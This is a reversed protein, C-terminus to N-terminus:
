LLAGMRGSTMRAHTCTPFNRSARSVLVYDRGWVGGVFPFPKEQNHQILLFCTRWYLSIDLSHQNLVVLVFLGKGMKHTPDPSSVPLCVARLRSWPQNETRNGGCLGQLMGYCFNHFDHRPQSPCTWCRCTCLSQSKTRIIPQNGSVLLTQGLVPTWMSVYAHYGRIYSPIELM